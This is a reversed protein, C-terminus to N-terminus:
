LNSEVLGQGKAMSEIEGRATVCGAAATRCGLAAAWGKWQQQRYTVCSHQAAARERAQELGMNPVLMSVAFERQSSFGLAHETQELSRDQGAM